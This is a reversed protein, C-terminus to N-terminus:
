MWCIPSQYASNKSPELALHEGSETSLGAGPRGGGASCGSPAAGAHQDDLRRDFPVCVHRDRYPALERVTNFAAGAVIGAAGPYLPAAPIADVTEAGAPLDDVTIPTVVGLPAGAAASTPSGPSRASRAPRAPTCSSGGARRGPCRVRIRRRPRPAGLPAVNGSLAALARAHGPQLAEVVAIADYRPFRRGRVPARLRGWRLLRATRRLELGALARLGCLEGMVGGPFADVLLADPTGAGRDARAM